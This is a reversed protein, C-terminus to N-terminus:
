ANVAESLYNYLFENDYPSKRAAFISIGAGKCIDIRGELDETEWFNLVEENELGSWHDDDLVPYAEMDAFM